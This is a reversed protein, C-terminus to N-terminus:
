GRLRARRRATQRKGGCGARARPAAPLFAARPTYLAVVELKWLPWFHDALWKSTQVCPRAVRGMMAVMRSWGRAAPYQM